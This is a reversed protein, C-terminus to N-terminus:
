FFDYNDFGFIYVEIKKSDSVYADFGAKSSTPIPTWWFVIDDSIIGRMVRLFADPNYTDTEYVVSTRLVHMVGLCVPEPVEKDSSLLSYSIETLGSSGRLTKTTSVSGGPLIVCDSMRELREYMRPSIHSPLTNVPRSKKIKLNEIDEVSTPVLVITLVKDEGDAFSPLALAVMLVAFFLKLTNM